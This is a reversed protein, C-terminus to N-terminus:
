SKIRCKLKKYKIGSVRYQYKITFFLTMTQNCHRGGTCCARCDTNALNPYKVPCLCRTRREIRTCVPNQTVRARKKRQM